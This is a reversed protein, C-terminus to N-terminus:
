LPVVIVTTDDVRRGSPEQTLMKIVAGIDGLADWLLDVALNKDRGNQLASNTLWERIVGAISHDKSRRKYLDLLGDSYMVLIPSPSALSALDAHVVEATNSLYPPSINRTLLEDVKYNQHFKPTALSFVRETYIPLLKFPM